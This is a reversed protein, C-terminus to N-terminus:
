LSNLYIFINSDNHKGGHFRSDIIKFNNISILELVERRTFYHYYRYGLINGKSDHWPRNINVLNDIEENNRIAAIIINRLDRRWKRWVSILIGCSRNSISYISKIAEKRLTESNLHHLVAIALIGDACNKRFPLAPLAGAIKQSQEPGVFGQLLHISLDIGIYLSGPFLNLNRGNGAGIDIIIGQHDWSIIELYTSVANWPKTKKALYDQSIERYASRLKNIM